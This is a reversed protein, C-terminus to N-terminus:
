SHNNGLGLFDLFNSASAITDSDNTPEAPAPEEPATPEISPEETTGNGNVPPAPEVAPETVNGQVPEEPAPIPETVNGNTGTGNDDVPPETPEPIPIPEEQSENAVLETGNETIVQQGPAPTVLVPDIPGEEAPPEVAPCECPEPEPPTVVTVNGPIETVTDNDPTVIVTDNDIVTVNGPVEIVTGNSPIVVTNNTALKVTIVAQQDEASQETSIDFPNQAFANMATNLSFTTSIVALIAFTALVLRNSNSM